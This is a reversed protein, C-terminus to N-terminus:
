DTNEEDSPIKDVTEFPIDEVDLNNFDFVGNKDIQSKMPKNWERPMSINYVHKMFKEPDLRNDDKPFTAEYKELMRGAKEYRGQKYLKKYLDYFSERIFLKEIQMDIKEPDNFLAEMLKYDRYATRESINFKRQVLELVDQKSYKHKIRHSFMFVARDLQDQETESIPHSEPNLYHARLKQFTNDQSRLLDSM